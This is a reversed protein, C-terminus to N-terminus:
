GTARDLLVLNRGADRSYSSGKLGDGVARIQIAILGTGALLNVSGVELTEGPAHDAAVTARERPYAGSLYFTLWLIALATALGLAAFLRVLWRWRPGKATEATEGM